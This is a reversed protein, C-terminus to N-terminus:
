PAPPSRSFSSRGARSQAPATRRPPASAGTRKRSPTSNSWAGGGSLARTLAERVSAPDARGGTKKMVQGVFWGFTQTKGSRYLAAQSPSEAVIAAALADLEGSNSMKGLGKEEVIARAEKRSDLMAAFVEKATAASIEKSELMALLGALREPSIPFSLADEPSIKREKMWRLVEGTVWNAAVRPPALAAAKEVYDALEPSGTLIEAGPPPLGYPALVRKQRARPLEPLESAARAAWAEDVILAGLDPEPFYRYDHAEEKGRMPLTKGAAADWLRPGLVIKEGRSLAAAQREIEYEIAKAVFRISNLNKIEVRTGLPADQSLRISVNADCRLNGKEMDGDSVGT